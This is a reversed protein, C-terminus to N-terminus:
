RVGTSSSSSAIRRKEACVSEGEKKRERESRNSTISTTYMYTCNRSSLQLVHSRYIRTCMYIPHTQIMHSDFYHSYLYPSTFSSFSPLLSYQRPTPLLPWLAPSSFPVHVKTKPRGHMSFSSSTRFQISHTETKSMCSINARNTKEEEEQEGRPVLISTFFFSMFLWRQVMWPNIICPASTDSVLFFFSLTEKLSHSSLEYERSHVRPISSESLSLSLPLSTLHCSFEIKIM